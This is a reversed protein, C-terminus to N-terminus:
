FHQIRRNRCLLWEYHSLTVLFFARLIRYEFVSCVCLQLDSVRGSKWTAIPLNLMKFHGMKFFQELMLDTGDAFNWFTIRVLILHRIRIQWKRVLFNVPLCFNWISRGKGTHNPVFTSCLSMVLETPFFISFKDAVVIETKIAASARLCVAIQCDTLFNGNDWFTRM